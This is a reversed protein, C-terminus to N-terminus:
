HQYDADVALAALRYLLQEVVDPDNTKPVYASAGRLLVSEGTVECSHDSTVILPVVGTSLMEVFDHCIMDPIFADVLIVTPDWDDISSIAEEGSEVQRVEIQFNGNWIEASHKLLEVYNPCEDVVLLRVKKMTTM